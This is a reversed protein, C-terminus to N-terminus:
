YCGALNKMDSKIECREPHKKSKHSVTCLRGEFIVRYKKANKKRMNKEVM